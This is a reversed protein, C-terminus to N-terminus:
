FGGQPSLTDGRTWGFIHTLILGQPSPSQPLATFSTSTRAPSLGARASQGTPVTTIDPPLAPSWAAPLGSTFARTPQLFGTQESLPALLAAPRLALSGYDLGSFWGRVLIPTHPHHSHRSTNGERRLGSNGTFSQTLAVPSNGTTSSSSMSRFLML